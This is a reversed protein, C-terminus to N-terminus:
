YSRANMLREFLVKLAIAGTLPVVGNGLAQLRESRYTNALELWSASGDAVGCLDPQAEKEGDGNSGNSKESKALKETTGVPLGGGNTGKTNGLKEVAPALDPREDLIRQWEETESPGPPWYPHSCKSTSRESM